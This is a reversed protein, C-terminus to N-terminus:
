DDETDAGFLEDVRLEVADFPEARITQGAKASLALLYGTEPRRYVELVKEIPNALWYHPVGAHFYSQM